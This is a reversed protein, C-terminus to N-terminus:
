LVEPQAASWPNSSLYPGTNSKVLVQESHQLWDNLAVGGAPTELQIDVRVPLNKTAKLILKFDDAHPRTPALVQLDLDSQARMAISGTALSYGCSGTVGWPLPWNLKALQMLSHVVPLHQWNYRQWYQEHILDQPRVRKIIHKTEIWCAQRQSRLTGRIGAAILGERNQDRRIVVPLNHRYTQKVWEPMVETLHLADLTDIWVLDHPTFQM